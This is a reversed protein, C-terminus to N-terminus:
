PAGGYQQSDVRSITTRTQGGTRSRITQRIEDEVTARSWLADRRLGRYGRKWCTRM